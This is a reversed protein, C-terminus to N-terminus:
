RAAGDLPRLWEAPFVAAFRGPYDPLLRRALAGAPRPDIRPRLDDFCLLLRVCAAVQFDAATPETGGLVCTELAADVRDLQVALTELRRRTAEDDVRMGRLVIPALLPVLLPMARDPFPLYSPSAFTALSARDHQVAWYALRRAVEQLEEDAWRELEEVEARREAGAPFLPPQPKLEDLARAIARSGEVRRGDIRATPVTTGRFGRLRLLRRHIQNPFDRRVYPLAKLELMAQVAAVPHSGPIGTLTIRKV